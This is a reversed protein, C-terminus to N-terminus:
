SRVRRSLVAASGVIAGIVMPLGLTTGGYYFCGLLMALTAIAMMWPLWWVTKQTSM